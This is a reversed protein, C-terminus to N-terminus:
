AAQNFIKQKIRKYLNNKMKSEAAKEEVAVATGEVPIERYSIFEKRKPIVLKLEGKTFKADINNLDMDKTIAYRREFSTSHINKRKKFINTSSKKEGEIVIYSNDLKIKLDKKRFDPILIQLKYEHPTEEVNESVPEVIKIFPEFM